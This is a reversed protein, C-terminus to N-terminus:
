TQPEYTEFNWPIWPNKIKKGEVLKGKFVHTVGHRIDKGRLLSDRWYRSFRQVSGPPISLVVALGDFEGYTLIVSLDIYKKREVQYNQAAWEGEVVKCDEDQHTTILDYSYRFDYDDDNNSLGNSIVWKERSGGIRCYFEMGIEGLEKSSFVGDSLVVIPYAGVGDLELGSFGSEEAMRTLDEPSMSLLEGPTKVRKAVETGASNDAAIMGKNDVDPVIALDPVPTAAPTQVPTEAVIEVPPANVHSEIPEITSTAVTNPAPATPPVPPLNPPLGAAPPKPTQEEAPEFLDDISGAPPSTTGVPPAEAIGPPTPMAAPHQTAQPAGIHTPAPPITPIQEDTNIPNVDNQPLM